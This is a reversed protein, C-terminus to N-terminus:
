LLGYTVLSNQTGIFVKGNAVIPTAFHTVPPLTDRGNAAQTSNYLTKLTIADLAWFTSGSRTWLIGNSTGNATILAHGGGGMSVSKAVPPLALTGNSMAYALVPGQGTFYVTNNWYAATGSGNGGGQPIEQVIQTDATTCTKCLRGMNGRDLLYITGEKGVAVCENPHLGSQTPLLLIGDNLDLDNSALYQHNYPTFWDGLILTAGYQRVKFVSISLNSGSVYPGEATEAYIRGYQDASLGAGKGWISALFNGPETTFSGEPQLTNANYSLIWGQSAGNCGNSGFGVYINGNVFLLGPRNLQYLDVFTTTVGNLTHTATITIPGGLKEQGTAVDIAHLRHVVAGSEYTEAVLYLTNTAPNIVPTSLIGIETFGTTGGCKVVSIPASTAGAPSYNFISTMWLPSANPTDADFAYVSDHMTVVYVVNHLQGGIDVGPLYLPQAAVMGDVPDTSLKGFTTKNVNSPTLVTENTNLGDRANDYHWTTVSILAAPQVQLAGRVDSAGTCFLLLAVALLMLGVSRKSARGDANPMGQKSAFGSNEYM